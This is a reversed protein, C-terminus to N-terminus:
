EPAREDCRGTSFKYVGDREACQRRLFRSKDAENSLEGIAKNTAADLEIAKAYGGETYRSPGHIFVAWILAISAGVILGLGIDVIKLM